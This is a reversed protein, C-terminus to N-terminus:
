VSGAPGSGGSVVGPAHARPEPTVSTPHTRYERRSTSSSVADSAVSAPQV